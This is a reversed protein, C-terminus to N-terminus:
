FAVKRYFSSWAKVKLFSVLSYVGQWHALIIRCLSFGRGDSGKEKLFRSVWVNGLTLHHHLQGSEM